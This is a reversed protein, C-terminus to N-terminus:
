FYKELYAFHTQYIEQKHERMYKLFAAAVATLQKKQLWVLRWQTRLPFGKVPIIAIKNLKLEDGVSVLPLVSYGLGALVAQKVAENSSLSLGVRPSINAKQFYQQMTHRTGSGEERFILPLEKFLTAGSASTNPLVNEAAGFLFLRNPMLIEEYLEIDSPLVTIMAFDVENNRLGELVKNKNSVEMELEVEPNESLFKRLFYPMIYKGTSVTAIRLKGSLIGQFRLSHDKIADVENLVRNAIREIEKGFDTIYLKRGIVETLPLDFQDQLNKLQISVAPQTMNLERAALTISKKETVVLFVRLQHLTFNM